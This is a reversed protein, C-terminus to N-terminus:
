KAKFNKKAISGVSLSTIEKLYTTYGKPLESNQDQTLTGLIFLRGLLAGLSASYRERKLPFIRAM